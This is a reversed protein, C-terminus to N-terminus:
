FAESGAGNKDRGIAKITQIRIEPGSAQRGLEALFEGETKLQGLWAIGIARVESDTSKRALNKLTENVRPTTM